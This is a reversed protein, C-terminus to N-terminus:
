SNQLEAAIVPALDLESIDTDISNSAVVKEAGTAEIDRYADSPLFHVGAIYISAADREQLIEIAKKMTGGTSIIDDAVVVDKGDVDFEEKIMTEIDGTVRHRRKVLWTFDCDLEAAIDEGFDSREQDPILVFPEDVDDRFFDAIVSAASLNVTEAQFFDLVRDDHINFTVVKDAGLNDITKAITRSSVAEFDRYRQDQRGYAFYPIVVTVHEAGLDNVLDLLLFLEMLSDNQPHLSQVIAVDEGDLRDELRVYSEGDPFKKYELGALEADLEEAVDEGLEPSSTGPVIVTM